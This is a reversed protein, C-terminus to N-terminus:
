FPKIVALAVIALLLLTPAENYARYFGATKTNGDRAFARQCRVDMVHLATMALVLVFKAKFWGAQYHAGAVAVYLGSAWAALAAPTAIAWLLRRAMVKITESLESGRAAGTHYVILRPLYLLGAMWAIVAIVHLTKVVLYTM